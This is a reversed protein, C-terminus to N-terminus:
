LSARSRNKNTRLAENFLSTHTGIEGTSYSYDFEGYNPHFFWHAVLQEKRVQDDSSYPQDLSVEFAFDLEEYQMYEPVDKTSVILAKSRTGKQKFVILYEKGFKLDIRCKRKIGLQSYVVRGNLYVTANYSSVGKVRVKTTLKVSQGYSNSNSIILFSIFLLGRLSWCLANM